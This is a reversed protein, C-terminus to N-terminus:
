RELTREIREKQITSLDAQQLVLGTHGEPVHVQLGHMKRGRFAALFRKKLSTKPFAQM